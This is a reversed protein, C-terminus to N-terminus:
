SRTPRGQADLPGGDRLFDYAADHNHTCLKVGARRAIDGLAHWKDAAVDWDAQYPSSSPDAGPGMHPLGLINAIELHKKFTDLDSGTLPWFGPIFGHNGQARLGNDDLWGGLLGAGAV